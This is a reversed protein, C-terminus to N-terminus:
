ELFAAAVHLSASGKRRMLEVSFTTEEPWNVFIKSPHCCYVSKKEEFKM